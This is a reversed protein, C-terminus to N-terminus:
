VPLGLKWGWHRHEATGIVQGVLERTAQAVRLWKGGDGAEEGDLVVTCLSHAAPLFSDVVSVEVDDDFDIAEWVVGLYGCLRVSNTLLSGLAAKQDEVQYKNIAKLYDDSAILIQGLCHQARLMCRVDSEASDNKFLRHFYDVAAAHDEQHYRLVSNLTTM